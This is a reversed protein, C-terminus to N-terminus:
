HDMEHQLQVPLVSPLLCIDDFDFKEGSYM